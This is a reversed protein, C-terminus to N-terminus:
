RVFNKKVKNLIYSKGFGVVLSPLMPDASNFFTQADPLFYTILDPMFRILCFMILAHAVAEFWNDKIWFKWSWHRLTRTSEVDRKKATFYKYIVWGFFAFTLSGFFTGLPMAGTLAHNYTM